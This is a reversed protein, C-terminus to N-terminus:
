RTSETAPPIQQWLSRFHKALEEMGLDKNAIEDLRYDPPPDVEWEDVQNEREGLWGLLGGERRDGPLIKHRTRFRRACDDRHSEFYPVLHVKYESGIRESASARLILTKLYGGKTQTLEALEKYEDRNHVQEGRFAKTFTAIAREIVCTAWKFYRAEDIMGSDNQGPPAPIVLQSHAFTLPARSFFIYPSKKADNWNSVRDWEDGKIGDENCISEWDRTASGQEYSKHLYWLRAIRPDLDVTQM